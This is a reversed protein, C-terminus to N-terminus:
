AKSASPKNDDRADILIIGTDGLLGLDKLVAIVKQHEQESFYLIVKISRKTGSAQEYIVVQRELNRKLQSNSALKFEVVTRDRSGRSVKFDVPGRGNNVERNVDSPSARWTLNYLIQVDQERKIPKGDLYFIRYGDKNEIQDKLFLARERAEEYTDGRQEYFSTGDLHRRVFDRVQEIFLRQVAAVDAGSVAAAEDGREERERIYYEIVEPFKRLTRDIAEDREKKPADKSLQSRFYNNIEARLQENPVADAIDEFHDVLGSRSIWIDEKTLIDKPTLLVYADEFAPLECWGREWSETAYNFRVRDVAFVRRQDARLHTRAFTQSYDLLFEKILNTTFDSINDRGVGKSVLCLKELHSGHTVQEDGFSHFIAHLNAHLSRAFDAGLGSGSNGVSSYGLWNQKVEGFCYWARLLGPNILESTSKGRLFKLYHIIGEHLQQYIPNDSNFLLFPDIFLPLDSVLSIDLAGYEEVVEANIGFFDSFYIDVM